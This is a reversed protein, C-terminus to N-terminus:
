AFESSDLSHPTKYVFHGYNMDCLQTLHNAPIITGWFGRNLMLAIM